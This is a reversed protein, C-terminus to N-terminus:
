GNPIRTCRFMIFKVCDPLCQFWYSAVHWEHVKEEREMGKWIAFYYAM